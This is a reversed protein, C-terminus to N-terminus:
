VEPFLSTVIQDLLVYVIHKNLPAHQLSDLVAGILETWPKYFGILWYPLLSYLGKRANEYLVRRNEQCTKENMRSKDSMVKTHLLKIATAARGSSLLKALANYLLANVLPDVKARTSFALMWTVRAIVPPVHLLRDVPVSICLM